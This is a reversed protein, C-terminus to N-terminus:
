TADGNGAYDLRTDIGCCHLHAFRLLSFRMIREMGVLTPALALVARFGPPEVVPRGIQIENIFSTVSLWERFSRGSHLYHSRLDYSAGLRREIDTRQLALLPTRAERKRFFEDTLLRRLTLVYRQKVQRMISKLQKVASEGKPLHEAIQQFLAGTAAPYLEEDTFVSFGALLEGCNVFDLFAVEPDSQWERLARGYFHAALLFHRYSEEPIAEGLLLDKVTDLRALDLPIELDVRPRHNFPGLGFLAIPSPRDPLPVRFSGHMELPGHNDFRKGFFASLCDCFLGGVGRYNPLVVPNDGEPVVVQTRIAVVFYNRSIPNESEGAMAFTPDAWDPSAPAVIFDPHQFGGILRSPTSILLKQVDERAKLDSKV